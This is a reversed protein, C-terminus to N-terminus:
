RFAPLSFDRAQLSAFFRQHGRDAKNTHCQKLGLTAMPFRPGRFNM